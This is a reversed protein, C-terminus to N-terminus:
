SGHNPEHRRRLRELEEATFQAGKSRARYPHLLAAAASGSEGGLPRRDVGTEGLPPATSLALHRSVAARRGLPARDVELHRLWTSTSGRAAGAGVARRQREEM